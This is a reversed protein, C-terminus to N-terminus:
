LVEKTINDNTFICLSAAIKMAQLAVQEAGLKTHALLARAAALAYPGGSGIGIVNDDPEIVDGNGSLLLMHEKDAVVILAELRRLAKDTRWEKALEVAARPLNGKYEELKSDFRSLLAFSDASSGAFGCLVKDSYLRRIKKAGHKMVTEGLTVQGDGAMVVKGNRKVAIVTTGHPQSGSYRQM